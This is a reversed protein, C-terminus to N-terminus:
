RLEPLERLASMSADLKKTAVGVKRLDIRRQRDIVV